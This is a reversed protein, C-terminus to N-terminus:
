SKENWTCAKFREGMCIQPFRGKYDKKLNETDYEITLVIQDTMVGKEFLDLVLENIMEKLVLKAKECSYACSLVQGSGM